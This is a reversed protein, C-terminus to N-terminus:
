LTILHAEAVGDLKGPAPARPKRELAKDGDRVFRQRIRVIQRECLGVEAAIEHDPTCGGPQNDDALLMIRARRLIAAPVTQRRCIAEFQERQEHTLCIRMKNRPNPMRAEPTRPM